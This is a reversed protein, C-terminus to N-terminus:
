VKSRWSDIGRSLIMAGKELGLHNAVVDCKAQFLFYINEKEEYMLTEFNAQGKSVILEADEFERTFDKDCWKMITGVADSGNDIVDCIEQIGSQVADEHVADNIVPSGKVVATVKVGADILTEILLRDFVIEGANDLLYLTSRAEQLDNSLSKYDDIHLDNYLATAITGEIDISRFIGFDIINGAIALRAATYLPDESRDVVEKLEGYMALAKDNYLVKIERFPDRGAENRILRHIHTTIHAPSGSLDHSSVVESVGKLIRLQSAEDIELHDFAITAQRFFCPFCDPYIRM